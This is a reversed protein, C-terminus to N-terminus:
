LRSKQTGVNKHIELPFTQTDTHARTRRFEVETNVHLYACVIECVHARACECVCASVCVSVCVRVRVCVCVCVCVSVSM